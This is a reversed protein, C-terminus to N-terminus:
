ARVRWKRAFSAIQFRCWFARVTAWLPDAGVAGRHTLNELMKLGNEVVVHSEQGEYPRHLSAARMMSTARIM